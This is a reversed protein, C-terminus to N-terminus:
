GRAPRVPHKMDTYDAEGHKEYLLKLLIPTVISSIIILLIVSTFYKSALMGDSLGKQAVILAVEGRTMMGVGVKLSDEGTFGLCKATVGCGIVKGILAVAVFALSFWLINLNMDRVDTQLGISAFFIPGFLMYSNIDMKRAIYEHDDTSCLIVGAIYAGTIDAVGFYKEAIYSMTFCIALGIIPIRRTHPWRQDMREFVKYIVFGVGIAFVFFLATKLAVSGLNESPDKLGLVMTLVLIGIVDDIIAASVITTGVFGSLKGLERLAQVTISVSTATMICGIMIANDFENTGFPAFGYFGMYLLTGLVLPVIVGNTAVLTAKVGTKKLDGLSTELGAGFMLLIVGIEAMGKIFDTDQVLNLVSPGILLGAIIEGAVQPAHLKRAVLGMIKASIIIIALSRLLDLTDM